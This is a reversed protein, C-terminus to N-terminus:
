PLKSILDGMPNRARIWAGDVSRIDFGLDLASFIRVGFDRRSRRRSMSRAVNSFSAHPRGFAAHGVSQGYTPDLWRSIEPQPNTEEVRLAPECLVAARM